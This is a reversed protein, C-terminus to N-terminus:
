ENETQEKRPKRMEKNRQIKLEKLARRCLDEVAEQRHNKYHGYNHAETKKWVVYPYPLKESHGIVFATDGVQISDTIQYGKNEQKEM